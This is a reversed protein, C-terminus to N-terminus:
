LALGRSPTSSAQPRAFWDTDGGARDQRGNPRETVLNKAAALETDTLVPDVDYERLLSVHGMFPNYTLTYVESTATSDFSGPRRRTTSM